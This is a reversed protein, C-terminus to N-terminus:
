RKLEFWFTTGVNLSSTVGYRANHAELIGKVISLGLGSRYNNEKIDEDGEGRYYRDWIYPIDREKIGRGNDSIEVKVYESFDSIAIEIIGGIPSHNLANNLLNFVVQEIKGEDARVSLVTATCKQIIQIYNKQSYIDLGKTVRNILDLISFEKIDLKLYGSQLQSLSLIDDVLASLRETEDIIVAINKERKALDNWTVDRITEAYGRILSLPTRLEHSVNAIIEKRLTENKALQQGLYNISAALKGIEDQGKSTVRASFDGSAMKESVKQIEIVPKSFSRAILSSIIMSSFLLVLAIYLFQKKLILVTDVVSALPMTILLAGSIGDKIVPLGILVIKNGFRPHDLSVTVEEGDIVKDMVQKRASNKIMMFHGGFGSSGTLGGVYIPEGNKDLLELSLNNNYCYSDIMEEFAKQDIEDYAQAIEIGQEKIASIRMNTYFSEWFVIQFLWLLVLILVVLVMMGLWLRLAINKM